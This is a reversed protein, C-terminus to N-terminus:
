FIIQPKLHPAMRSTTTPGPTTAAMGEGSANFPAVKHEYATLEQMGGDDFHTANPATEGALYWEGGTERRWIRYGSEDTAVDDWEVRLHAPSSATHRVNRAPELAAGAVSAPLVLVTVLASFRMGCNM